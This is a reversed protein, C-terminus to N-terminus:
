APVRKPQQGAARVLDIAARGNLALVDLTSRKGGAVTTISYARMKGRGGGPIHKIITTIM